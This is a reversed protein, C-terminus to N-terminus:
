VEVLQHGYPGDVFKKGDRNLSISTYGIQVWKTRKGQREEATTIVGTETMETQTKGTRTWM